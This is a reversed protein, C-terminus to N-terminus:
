LADGLLLMNDPEALWNTFDHAEHNWVERLEVQELRSLKSAM